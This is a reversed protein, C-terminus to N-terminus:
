SLTMWAAAIPIVYTLVVCHGLQESCRVICFVSVDAWRVVSGRDGSDMYLESTDM